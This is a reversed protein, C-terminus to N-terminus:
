MSQVMGIGCGHTHRSIICLRQRVLTVLVVLTSGQWYGSTSATLVNGYGDVYLNSRTEAHVTTVGIIGGLLALLLSVGLIRALAARVSLNAITKNM